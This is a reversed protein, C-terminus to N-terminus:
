TGTSRARVFGAHRHDRWLTLHEAGARHHRQRGVGTRGRRRAARRQRRRRGRGVAHVAPPLRDAADRKGQAGRARGGAHHRRRGQRRSPAFQHLRQARVGAASRHRHHRRHRHRAGANRGVVHDARRHASRSQDLGVATRRSGRQLRPRLGEAAPHHRPVPRRRQPRHRARRRRVAGVLHRDAGNGARGNDRIDKVMAGLTDLHGVIARDPAPATGSLTARIAGRRTLEFPIDLVELEGCVVAIAADTMGTPSPTELLRKLVDLLYADEISPDHM